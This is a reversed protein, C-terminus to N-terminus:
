GESSQSLISLMTPQGLLEDDRDDFDDNSSDEVASLEWNTKPPLTMCHQQCEEAGCVSKSSAGTLAVIFPVIMSSIGVLDTKNCL